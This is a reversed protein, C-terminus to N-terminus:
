LQRNRALSRPHTKATPRATLLHQHRFPTQGISYIGKIVREFRDLNSPLEGLLTSELAELELNTIKCGDLQRFPNPPYRMTMVFDEFAQMESPALETARGMLSVFAGNFAGFDERDGRWHLPGTDPLGKLSQTTMPGKMPHFDPLPLQGPPVPIM